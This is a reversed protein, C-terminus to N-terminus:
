SPKSILESQSNVAISHGSPVTLYRNSDWNGKILNQLMSADGPLRRFQWSLHQACDKCYKEAEANQTVDVYAACSNHAFSDFDAEVLDEVMEEDNPYRTGYIKRIHAERDPGPVRKGRVWGPSYFYTGPNEKLIANHPAIGGLLISICDHARPLILPCRIAQAGLLGNGCLGYALLIVDIELDEDLRNIAAQIEIRMNNPRDHLGMDLYEIRHWPPVDGGFVALEEKFVDCALLAYKTNQSM